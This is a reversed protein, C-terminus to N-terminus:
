KLNLLLIKQLDYLLYFSLNESATPSLFIAPDKKISLADNALSRHWHPPQTPSGMAKRGKAPSWFGSSNQGGTAKPHTLKQSRHVLRLERHQLGQRQSADDSESSIHHQSFHSSSSLNTHVNIHTSRIMHCSRASPKRARFDPCAPKLKWTLCVAPPPTTGPPRYVRWTASLTATIPFSPSKGTHQSTPWHSIVNESSLITRQKM